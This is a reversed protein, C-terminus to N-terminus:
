GSRGLQEEALQALERRVQLEDVSLFRDTLGERSSSFRFMHVSFSVGGDSVKVDDKIAGFAFGISPDGEMWRDDDFTSSLLRRLQLTISDLALGCSQVLPYVDINQLLASKWMAGVEVLFGAEKAAPRLRKVDGTLCVV